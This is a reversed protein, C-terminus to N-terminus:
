IERSKLRRFDANAITSPLLQLPLNAELILNGNSYRISGNSISKKLDRWENSSLYKFYTKSFSSCFRITGNISLKTRKKVVVVAVVFIM